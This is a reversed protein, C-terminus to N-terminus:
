DVDFVMVKFTGSAPDNATLLENHFRVTVTNTASVWAMFDGQAVISGNPIGLVVPDGLAAGTVTITLDSEGSGGTSPFDLTASGKLINKFTGGSPGLQLTGAAGIRIDGDSELVIDNNAGVTSGRNIKLSDGDSDDIGVRYDSTGDATVSFGVSADTDTGFSEILVGAATTGNEVNLLEEPTSDSGVSVNGGSAVSLRHTFTTGADISYFIFSNNILQFMCGTRGLGNDQWSGLGNYTKNVAFFAYSVGSFDLGQFVSIPQNSTNQLLVGYPYNVAVHTVPALLRGSCQLDLNAAILGNSFTLVPDTAVSLGATLTRSANASDWLTVNDVRTEPAWEITPTGGEAASSGSIGAGATITAVYDGTTDTTLAVADAAITTAFAGTGTGTVDGTLTITQDGTNIGALSADGTLTLARAADGTILTLVRNATLDSGPTLILQHSADTDDLRLADADYVHTGTWDYAGAQDIRASGFTGSGIAAADLLGGGAADQHSHQANTLSAITPTVLTPSTGLVVLGTGTEDTLVGALDASTSGALHQLGADASWTGGAIRPVGTLASTDLGTGGSGVPLPNTLTLVEGSSITVAVADSSDSIGGNQLTDADSWRALRGATGSGDLTGGGSGVAVWAAGDWFELVGLTTNWRILGDPPMAPRQSTTGASPLFGGSYTPAVHVTKSAPSYNFLTQAAATACLLLFAAIPRM